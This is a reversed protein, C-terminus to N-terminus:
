ERSRITAREESLFRVQRRITKRTTMPRVASESSRGAANTTVVKDETSEESEISEVGCFRSTDLLMAVFLEPSQRAIEVILSQVPDSAPQSGGSRTPLLNSATEQIQDRLSEPLSTIDIM